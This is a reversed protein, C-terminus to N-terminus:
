RRAFAVVDLESLRLKMAVANALEFRSLEITTASPNSIQVGIRYPSALDIWVVGVSPSTAEGVSSEASSGRDGCGAVVSDGLASAAGVLAMEKLRAFFM